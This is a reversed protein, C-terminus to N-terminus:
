LAKRAAPRTNHAQEHHTQNNTRASRKAHARRARLLHEHGARREPRHAPLPATQLSELNRLAAALISRLDPLTLQRHLRARRLPRLQHRPRGRGATPRHHLVRRRRKRQSGRVGIGARRQRLLDAVRVGAAASCSGVRDPEYEYVDEKGNTAQPVLQTPATSSCGAATQCIAPSTSRETSARATDLRPRQRRSVPGALGRSPRRAARHRRRRAAHRARRRLPREPQVLRLTLLGTAPTTSTSRRTVCVKAPHNADLNDYGTLPMQSMFALYEGTRPSAPPSIPSTPATSSSTARGARGKCAAGTVRTKTRCRPSSPSRGEHWRYLNCTAGPPAVEQSEHVCHGQNRGRHSCGTPSSISARATKASGRRDREARGRQWGVAAAHPRESRM